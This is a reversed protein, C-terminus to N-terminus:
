RRKRITRLQESFSLPKKTDTKPTVRESKTSPSAGATTNPLARKPKVASAYAEFRSKLKTAVYDYSAPRGKTSIIARVETQNKTVFDEVENRFDALAPHRDTFERWIQDSREKLTLRQDIEAQAETKIKTAYKELFAQPNTYLEETDYAPAAPAQPTVSEAAQPSQLLAERMGQRYADAIQAETEMASVQSTAYALAEDQTAFVKDGIRYKGTPAPAETEETTEEVETEPALEQEVEDAQTEIEEVTQGGEDFVVTKKTKPETQTNM